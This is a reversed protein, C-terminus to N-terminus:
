PTEPELSFRGARSRIIASALLPLNSMRRMHLDSLSKRDSMVTQPAVPGHRM